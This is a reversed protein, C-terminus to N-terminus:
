RDFLSKCIGNNKIDSLTNIELNASLNLGKFSCTKSVDKMFTQYYDTIVIRSIFFHCVGIKKEAFLSLYQCLHGFTIEHLVIKQLCVIQVCNKGLLTKLKTIILLWLLPTIKTPCFPFTLM